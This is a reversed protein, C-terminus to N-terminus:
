CGGFLVAKIANFAKLCDLEVVVGDFDNAFTSMHSIDFWATRLERIWVASCQHKMAGGTLFVGNCNRAVFGFNADGDLKVSRDVNIKIWNAPPPETQTFGMFGWNRLNGLIFDNFCYDCIMSATLHLKGHLCQNKATWIQYIAIAMMRVTALKLKNTRHKKM